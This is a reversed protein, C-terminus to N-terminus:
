GAKINGTHKENLLNLQELTDISIWKNKYISTHKLEDKLILQEWVSAFSGEKCLNNIKNIDLIQIGSCYKDSPIARSISKVFKNESKIFDGEVGDVPIVPVLACAPSNLDSYERELFEFDLDTINDCTLVLVAGRVYKLVSNFIWWSNDQNTTNVLSDVEFAKFLYDALLNKKYGVTVHIKRGSAKIKELNAGILTTENYPALAKPIQDTLPRMRSGRGAAM